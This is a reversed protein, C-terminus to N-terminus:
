SQAASESIVRKLLTLMEMQGHYVGEEYTFEIDKTLAPFDFPQYLEEETFPNVKKAGIKLLKEKQAEIAQLMEIMLLNQLM